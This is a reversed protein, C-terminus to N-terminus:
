APGILEAALGLLEEIDFPKGLYHHLGYRAAEDEARQLFRPDTSVVIVPIERTAAEGHLRALLDWGSRVGVALDVIVLDPDLAEIQNFTKPVFNTTTVNYREDEFLVRVVDLFEAAGNVVFVHKRGMQAREAPGAADDTTM